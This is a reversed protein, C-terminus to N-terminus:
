EPLILAPSMGNLFYHETLKQRYSGEGVDVNIEIIIGPFAYPAIANSNNSNGDM